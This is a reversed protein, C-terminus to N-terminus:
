SFFLSGLSVRLGFGSAGIPRTWQWLLHHAFADREREKEFKAHEDSRKSVM